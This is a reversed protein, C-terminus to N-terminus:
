IVSKLYLHNKTESVVPIRLVVQLATEVFDM